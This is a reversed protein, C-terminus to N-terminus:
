VIRSLSDMLKESYESVGSSTNLKSILHGNIIQRMKKFLVATQAPVRLKIWGDIEVVGREYVINFDGGCFLMLTYPTVVTTDHLYVKKTKIKELYVLFTARAPGIRTEGHNVSSPHCFLSDGSESVWEGQDGLMAINPYLAACLCNKVFTSNASFRNYRSEPDDVSGYRKSGQIFGIDKLMLVLQKRLDTIMYLTAQSLHQGKAYARAAGSGKSRKTELWGNYAAVMALHDSCQGSAITNSNSFCLAAKCRDAADREEYSSAFPTKYSLCAAVTLISSLCGLITGLLLLKGIRCDVPLGALHDGLPTLTEDETIAGINTLASVAADIAHSHPPEVMRGLFEKCLGLQLKRIHLCVEELPVRMIEPVPHKKMKKARDSTFLSFCVGPRVRGARGKRQKASAASIWGEILMGLGRSADYQREKVHGADVVYVIDDITISTEAINTALVFKRIGKPPNKFVGRQEEPSINSHLPLVWEKKSAEKGFHYSSTLQDYMNNIEAMGPLFVLVAGEEFNDDIHVLLEQILEYDIKEENLRMLNRRTKSSYDVFSEPDYEPNLIEGGDIDDGWNARIVKDKTQSGVLVNVNQSRLRHCAPNDQDLQYNVMEYIDELYHQEVPFTRGGVSLVPCNDLYSSLLTTDITASMLVLKLPASNDALRRRYVIDRVMALLLDSQVTREHVEDIVVHSVTSLLPDGILKRLLIGTTCFLLKTDSTTSADLRVHYGVRSGRQGPPPELRESAVREAVSVAAIRRPQTCVVFTDEGKNEKVLNDLIFQPVQTTKGSGTEGCVILFDNDELAASIREKIDNIPLPIGQTKSKERKELEDLLTKNKPGRSANKRPASRERRGSRGVSHMDSTKECASSKDLSGRAQMLSIFSDIFQDREVNQEGAAVTDEASSESEWKVWMERYPSPIIRYLPQQNTIQFLAKAAVANQADQISTWNDEEEAVEFRKQEMKKKRGKVVTQVEVLVAYRYSSSSDTQLKEYKPNPLQSRQCHQQLLVKPMRLQEHKKPQDKQPKAKLKKKTEQLWEEPIEKEASALKQVPVYDDEADEDFMAGGFVEGDDSSDSEEGKKAKDGGAPDSSEMAELAEFGLGLEEGAAEPEETPKRLQSEDSIGLALLEEKLDRIMKGAEKQKGKDGEAKANSAETKAVELEGAIEAIAEEPDEPRSRKRREVERADAYVKWQGDDETAYPTSAMMMYDEDEEESEDYASEMYRKIWDKNQAEEEKKRRAAAERQKRLQEEAEKRKQEELRRRREEEEKRRREEEKRRERAPREGGAESSGGQGAEEAAGKTIVTVNGASGVSFAGSALKRPLEDAAFNICLWDLVNEKSVGVELCGSLGEEVQKRTFGLRSVQDYIERVEEKLRSGKGTVEVVRTEEEVTKWLESITSRLAAEIGLSLSVKAEAKVKGGEMAAAKSGNGSGSGSGKSGGFAFNIKRGGPAVSGSGKKKGQGGGGGGGKGKGRKGGM